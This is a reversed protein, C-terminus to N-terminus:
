RPLGAGAPDGAGFEYIGRSPNSPNFRRNRMDRAFMVHQGTWRGASASQLKFDTAQVSTLSPSVFLPDVAGATVNAAQTSITTAASPPYDTAHTTTWNATNIYGLAAGSAGFRPWWMNHDEVLVAAASKKDIAGAENHASISNRITLQGAATVTNLIMAFLHSGYDVSNYLRLTGNGQLVAHRHGSFYSLNSYAETTGTSSHDIAHLSQYAFICRKIYWTSTSGNSIGAVGFTIIGDEWSHFNWNTYVGSFVQNVRVALAEPNVASRVYVTSYGLADNDGWGMPHVPGTLPVEGTLAGVTGMDPDLDASDSIYIGAIVGSAPPALSPNSGNTRRVYWEASNGTSQTWTYGYAATLTLGADLTSGNLQWRRMRGATSSVRPDLAARNSGRTIDVINISAGAAEDVLINTAHVTMTTTGVTNVTYQGDNSASGTIRIIDGTVFGLATFNGSAYTITRTSATFSIDTKLRTAVTSFAERYVGAGEFIVRDVTVSVMATTARELATAGRWANASSTGDNAGTTLNVNIYRVTEAHGLAPILACLLILMGLRLM